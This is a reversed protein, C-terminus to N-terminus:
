QDIVTIYYYRWYFKDFYIKKIKRLCYFTKLFYLTETMDQHLNKLFYM